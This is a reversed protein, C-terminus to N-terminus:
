ILPGLNPMRLTLRLAMRWALRVFLTFAHCNAPRKALHNGGQSQGGATEQSHIRVCSVPAIRWSVPLTPVHPIRPVGHKGSAPSIPHTPFIPGAGAGLTRRVRRFSKRGDCHRIGLHICPAKCCAFKTAVILLDSALPTALMSAPTNALDTAYPSGSSPAHGNAHDNASHLTIGPAQM